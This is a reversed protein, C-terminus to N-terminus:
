PQRIADGPDDRTGDQRGRGRGVSNVPRSFRRGPWWAPYRGTLHATLEFAAATSKGARNGAIFAREQHEAGAAFFETHKPYLERRLPGTDPYLNAFRHHADHQAIGADLRALLLARQDTPLKALAFKLEDINM